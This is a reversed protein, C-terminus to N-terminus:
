VYKVVTHEAWVKKETGDRRVAVVKIRSDETELPNLAGLVVGRDLFEVV